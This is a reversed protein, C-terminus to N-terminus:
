LVPVNLNSIFPSNMSTFYKILLLPKWTPSRMLCPGGVCVGTKGFVGNACATCVDGWVLAWVAWVGAISVLSIEIVDLAGLLGGWVLRGVLFLRGTLFWRLSFRWDTTLEWRTSLGVKLLGSKSVPLRDTWGPLYSKMECDWEVCSLHWLPRFLFLCMEM